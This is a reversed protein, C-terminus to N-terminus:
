EIWTLESSILEWKGNYNKLIASGGEYIVRFDIRAYEMNKDFIINYALPYTELQWYGGWHGYFITVFNELFNKRNIIEQQSLPTSGSSLFKNLIDYYNKNLYVPTSYNKSTIFPRFDDISDTAMGPQDIVAFPGYMMLALYSLKGNNRIDEIKLSDNKREKKMSNLVFTELEDDTFYVKDIFYIKIDNQVIFFKVSNYIDTGFEPKGIKELEQPLYFEKFALYTNKLTDNLQNFEEDTITPVENHWEIFFNWLQSKSNENYANKLTEYSKQANSDQFCLLFLLIAILHKM